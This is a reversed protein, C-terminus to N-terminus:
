AQEVPIGETRDRGFGPLDTPMPMPTFDAYFDPPTLSLGEESGLGAVLIAEKGEIKNAVGYRTQGVIAATALSLCILGMIVIM